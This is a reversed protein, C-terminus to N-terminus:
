CGAGSGHRILGETVPYASNVPTRSTWGWCGNPFSKLWKELSTIRVYGANDAVQGNGIYIGVHGYYAGENTRSEGYVAAGIPINSFDKSVGFYYGSCRACNRRTVVAGAKEYVDNVWRLCYGEQPTIGYKKSQKAIEVIKLQIENAGADESPKTKGSFMALYEQAKGLRNPINAEDVGCREFTFCFATVSDALDKANTWDEPTYKTGTYTSTLVNYTAYGYAGGGPTLEAMLFEIQTNEDDINSGKASAYFTLGEKRGKTWQCIGFAKSKPNEAKPNFHSEQYINGMAAATAYESYGMDRLAFWIKEEISSGYISAGSNIILPEFVSFDFDIRINSNDPDKAKEILYLTLDVMNVTSQNKQVIGTLWNITAWNTILSFAKTDERLLKVFNMDTNPDVDTKERIQAPQREYKDVHINTSTYKEQNITKQENHTIKTYYIEQTSIINGIGDYSDIRDSDYTTSDGTKTWQEDPIKNTEEYPPEDKQIHTYPIYVEVIWVNAYLIDFQLINEVDTITNKDYYDHSEESWDSEESLTREGGEYQSYLEYKERFCETYKYQNVTVTTVTNDYIGVKIESNYALKALGEVFDYSEGMVLLEWLYEFPLTYQQVISKYNITKRIPMYEVYTANIQNTTDSTVLYRADYTNQILQETYGERIKKCDQKATNTSEFEGKQEKWSAVIANEDKDLTFYNFVDRNGDSEYESFLTDFEDPSIYKLITGTGNQSDPNRVLEIIGNTKSSDISDLKPYQTILEAELLYELEEPKKLYRAYEDSICWLLEAQTCDDLSTITRSLKKSMDFIRIIEEDSLNSIEEESYGEDLLAQKLMEDKDSTIGEIPNISINGTYISPRGKEKEDWTGEDDFIWWTIGSLLVLIILIPILIKVVKKLAKKAIQKIKEKEIEIM